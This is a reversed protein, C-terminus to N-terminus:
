IYRNGSPTKKPPPSDRLYLIMDNAFLLLKDKGKRNTARLERAKNSQSRSLIPACVDKGGEQNKPFAKPQEWKTFVNATSKARLLSKNHRPM